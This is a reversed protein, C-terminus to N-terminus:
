VREPFSWCNLALGYEVRGMVPEPASGPRFLTLTVAMDDVVSTILAAIPQREYCSHFHVIRGVSPKQHM